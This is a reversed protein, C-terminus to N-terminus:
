LFNEKIKEILGRFEWNFWLKEVFGDQPFFHMITPFPRV